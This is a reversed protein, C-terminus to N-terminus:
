FTWCIQNSTNLIIFQISDAVLYNYEGPIAAQGAVTIQGEFLIHKIQKIEPQGSLQYLLAFCIQHTVYLWVLFGLWSKSYDSATSSIIGLVFLFM